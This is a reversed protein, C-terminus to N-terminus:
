AGLIARRLSEWAATALEGASARPASTPPAPCNTTAPLVAVQRLVCVADVVTISGSGNVDAHQYTYGAALMGSQSDPNAVVVDVTSTLQDAPCATTAPLAAVVRVICLADLSTVANSGNVDGVTRSHAPTRATLSTASSVSVETAARGGFTAGAGGQFNSGSITALTGGRGPGVTPSIGTVTPPTGATRTATPTSSATPTLTATATATPAQTATATPAATASSAATATGTPAETATPAPTQTSTLTPTGTAAATPVETATATLTSTATPTLTATATATPTLTATPTATSTGTPSATAAPTPTMTATATPAVTATPTGACVICATRYPFYDVLGLSSDDLFHWIHDEILGSDATGWYNNEANVNASGTANGNYLDSGFASSNGYIDNDGITALCGNCLFVGGGRSDVQTTVNSAITNNSIAVAGARTSEIDIGGGVTSAGNGTITNGSITGPAYVTVGGGGGSTTNGTITNGTLTASALHVYMGAGSTNGTISNGTATVSGSIGFRDATSVSMSGGTITNSSIIATGFGGDGYTYNGGSVSMNGGTITNSSITATRFSGFNGGTEAVGVVSMSGGTITNSSITADSGGSLRVSMSGGGIITNGSVIVTLPNPTCCSSGGVFDIGYSTNGNVTATTSDTAYAPVYIYMIGSSTNGNITATTSSAVWMANGNGSITNGSMSLSRSIIPDYPVFIGWSTNNSVTNDGLLVSGTTSVTMGTSANNSVTNASIMVSGTVSVNIGNAAVSGVIGNGTVSNNTIRLNGGSWVHIGDAKNNRITNHDVYPSSANIRLAGNDTTSAGGAYEVVAYQLISGGTYNGDIDFTADTSSDSFYLYGWDGMAPSALNSTFTIPSAATGRALLMGDVQLSKGSAVKVAVGPEIALTVGALVVVNGTVLYPSCQLYWTTDAGILGSVNNPSPCTTSATRGPGPAPTRVAPAAAPTPTAPAVAAPTPTSPQVTATPTRAPAGAGTATALPTSTLGQAEVGAVADGSLGAVLTALVVLIGVGLSSRWVGFRM